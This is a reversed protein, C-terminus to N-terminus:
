LNRIEKWVKGLTALDASVADWSVSGDTWKKEHVTIGLAELNLQEEILRSDPSSSEKNEDASSDDTSRRRGNADSLRRSIAAQFAAFLHRPFLFFFFFFSRLASFNLIKLECLVIYVRM